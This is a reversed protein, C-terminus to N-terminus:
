IWQAYICLALWRVCARIRDDLCPSESICYKGVNQSIRFCHSFPLNSSVKKNLSLVTFLFGSLSTFSIAFARELISSTPDPFAHGYVALLGAGWSLLYLTLTVAIIGLHRRLSLSLCLSPSLSLSPSPSLSLSPPLSLPFSLSLRAIAITHFNLHALFHSM